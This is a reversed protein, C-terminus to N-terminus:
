MSQKRLLYLTNPRTVRQSLTWCSDPIKSSTKKGASIKMNKHQKLSHTQMGIGEVSVNLLQEIFCVTSCTILM